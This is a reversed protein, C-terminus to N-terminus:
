QATSYRYIAAVDSEIPLENVDVSYVNGGKELTFMAALNFLDHQGTPMQIQNTEFDRISVEGIKEASKPIFLTDIKGFYAGEVIKNIDGSVSESNSLDGLRELDNYFDKLFHSEVIEWAKETVQNHSMPDPNKLIADEVLREYHNIKRYHAVSSDVGALILPDKRKRMYSTVENEITKLYETIVTKSDDEAGHGHFIPTGKGQGSHHQVSRQYVDFQRFEEMSSPANELKILENSDMTCKLLRINKQSLTLVCFSGDKSIMRILPTILFNPAVQVRENVSIPLKFTEFHDKTAFVAIGKDNNRWFESDSTLEKLRNLIIEKEERDIEKENLKSEAKKVQNKYRIVDQQAEPETRHTPLYISISHENAHQQLDLITQRTIM